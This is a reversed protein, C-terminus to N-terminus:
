LLLGFLTGQMAHQPSEGASIWCGKTLPMNNLGWTKITRARVILPLHIVRVVYKSDCDELVSAIAVM